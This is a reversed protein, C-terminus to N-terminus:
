VTAPHPPEFGAPYLELSRHRSSAGSAFEEIGKQKSLLFIWFSVGKYWCTQFGNLLV